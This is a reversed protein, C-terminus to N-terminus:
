KNNGSGSGSASDDDDDDDDSYAGRGSSAIDDDSMTAKPKTPQSSGKDKTSTTTTTTITAQSTTEDSSKGKESASPIWSDFFILGGRPKAPSPAETTSPTTSASAATSIAAETTSVPRATTTTTSTTTTTTTTIPKVPNGNKDHLMTGHSASENLRDVLHGYLFLMGVGFCVGVCVILALLSVCKRNFAKPKLEVMTSRRSGNALHNVNKSGDVASAPSDTARNVNGNTEIDNRITVMGFM